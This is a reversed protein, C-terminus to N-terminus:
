LDNDCPVGLAADAEISEVFVRWLLKGFLDRLCLQFTMAYMVMGVLCGQTGSLV